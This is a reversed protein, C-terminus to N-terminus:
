EDDRQLALDIAAELGMTRGDNLFHSYGQHGLADRVSAVLCDYAECEKQPVSLGAGQRLAAAAGLLRAAGEWHQLKAMLRAFSELSNTASREDGIQSLISLAEELYTQASVLDGQRTAVNALNHLSFSVGRRDGLERRISLSEVLYKGALADNDEDFSLVGLNSLATAAGWRDGIERSITLSEEFSIRASDHNGQQHALGGLNNLATAIYFRDGVGRRISLSDEFHTRAAAYDGSEAAIIALQSLGAAIGLRDGVEGFISLAQESYLRAASHDGESQALAAAWALVAARPWTRESTGAKCLARKCWDRGESLHGRMWWYRALAGCLRLCAEEDECTTVSWALASRLNAYDSDLVRFWKEQGPGKLQPEGEEALAICWDRHRLKVREADGNEILRQAAYQRVVELMRYRGEPDGPRAEYVVFSKEVLLTLWHLIESSEVGDGSCTREAADLTWGDSFVSLRSLVLRGVESLLAYSWDLTARMTQQRSLAARNTGTLLTLEDDLRLAIQELTLVRVRAAALELALPIGEVRSCINAVWCANTESLAFQSQAAQAREVFLQVSGFAAVRELLVSPNRPLLELLPVTLAPVAWAREGTIGLPERSTTLVSVGNCERLVHAVLHATAELVHECNDLVLLLSRTRLHEVLGDAVPRGPEEQCGLVSAIQQAIQDSEAVSELPVFWVGDAYENECEEAVALALRTKGIGGMGILSVLRCSRLKAMVAEEENQRGLMETLGRPVYGKVCPPIPAGAPDSGKSIARARLQARLRNYLATTKQDPAGYPDDRRLHSRFDRYVKLADNSNGSKALAEMWGRLPADAFSDVRTARQFYKAASEYDALGFAEEALQQLARVLEQERAEREPVVWEEVCSQMLPGRYLALAQKLEQIQRGAVASDFRLVDVEAHELDLILSDRTPSIIRSSEAGLAARLESLAVRLNSSARCPDSDPWLM